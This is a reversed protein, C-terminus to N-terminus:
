GEENNEVLAGVETRDVRPDFFIAHVCHPSARRAHGLHIEYRAIEVIVVRIKSGDFGVPVQRSKGCVIGCGRRHRFEESTLLGHLQNRPIRLNRASRQYFGNLLDNPIM